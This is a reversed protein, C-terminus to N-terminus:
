SNDALLTEESSILFFVFCFLLLVRLSLAEAFSEFQLDNELKKGRFKLVAIGSLIIRM